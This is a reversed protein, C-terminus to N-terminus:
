HHTNLALMLIVTLHNKKEHPILCFLSGNITVVVCKM